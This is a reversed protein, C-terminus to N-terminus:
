RPNPRSQDRERARAPEPGDSRPRRLAPAVFLERLLSGLQLEMGSSTLWPGLRSPNSFGTVTAPLTVDRQNCM